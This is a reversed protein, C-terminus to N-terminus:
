ALDLENYPIIGKFTFSFVVTRKSQMSLSETAIKMHPLYFIPTDTQRDVIRLPVYPGHLIEHIKTRAAHGQLGGSFKVRVGSVSGQVSVKTTRIEQPHASDIGYIEQEGYDITYSIQQIEPFLKDAIYVKIEAGKLVKSFSM